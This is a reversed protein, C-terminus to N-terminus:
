KKKLFSLADDANDFSKSVNKKKHIDKEIETLENELNDSMYYSPEHSFYVIKNKVFQRLYANLLTGLSFGMEKAIKRAQDKLNKDTKITFVTPSM